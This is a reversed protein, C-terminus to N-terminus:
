SPNSLHVDLNRLSAVYIEHLAPKLIGQRKGSGWTIVAQRKLTAARLLRAAKTKEGLPM